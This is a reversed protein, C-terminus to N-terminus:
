ARKYLGRVSFGVLGIGILALAMPEPVGIASSGASWSFTGSPGNGSFTWRGLTDQFGAARIVGMGELALFSTPDNSPLVTISTMDFSFGGVTWFDVLPGSFSAFQFDQITGIQPAIVDGEVITPANDSSNWDTAAPNKRRGM